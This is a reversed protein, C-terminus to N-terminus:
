VEGKEFIQFYRRKNGHSDVDVGETILGNKCQTEMVSDFWAIVQANRKLIKHIDTVYIRGGQRLAQREIKAQVALNIMGFLTVTPIAIHTQSRPRNRVKQKSGKSKQERRKKSM